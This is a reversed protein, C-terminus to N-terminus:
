GGRPRRCSGSSDSGSGAPGHGVDAERGVEGFDSGRGGVGEVQQAAPCGRREGCIRMLLGRSGCSSPFGVPFRCPASPRHRRTSAGATFTMIGTMDDVAARVRGVTIATHSMMAPMMPQIAANSSVSSFSCCSTSGFPAAAHSKLTSTCHEALRCDACPLTKPKGLGSGRASRSSRGQRRRRRSGRRRSIRWTTRPATRAPAEQERETKAIQSMTCLMKTRLVRHGHHMTVQATTM